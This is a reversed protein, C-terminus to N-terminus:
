VLRRCSEGYQGELSDLVCECLDIALQRYDIAPLTVQQGWPLTERCPLSISHPLLVVTKTTLRTGAVPLAEDHAM